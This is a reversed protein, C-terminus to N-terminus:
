HTLPSLVPETGVTWGNGMGCVCVCPTPLEWLPSGLHGQQTGPLTLCTLGAQGGTIWSVAPMWAFGVSVWATSRGLLWPVM